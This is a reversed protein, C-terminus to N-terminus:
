VLLLPRLTVQTSPKLTLFRGLGFFFFSSFFFNLSLLPRRLTRSISCISHPCSFITMDSGFSTLSNESNLWRRATWKLHSFTGLLAILITLLSLRRSSITSPFSCLWSFTFFLCLLHTLSATYKGLSCKNMQASLLHKSLELSTALVVCTHTHTGTYTHM